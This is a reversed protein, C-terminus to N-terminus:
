IQKAYGRMSAGFARTRLGLHERVKDLAATNDEIAMIPESPGFPLAAGLGVMEAVRAAASALVGPLPVIRKKKDALPLAERVAALLTPWDYAEPGALPYVEGVAGRERLSAVVAAAVDDVHVPQIKASEPKPIPPFGTPPAVRAFYPMVFFPAARGLAWDKTMKMFEGDPGHILSPRLITWELGSQRVLQESAYKSRHYETAADPRTGLASIHIFRSVGASRAADLAAATAEPHARQFTVEPPFERRIGICHVLGACGGTLEATARRNGIDGFVWSVGGPLAGKAKDRERVLARVGFGEDLLARVVHRGVFGTAGTVAITSGSMCGLTGLAM